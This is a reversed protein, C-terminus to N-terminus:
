FKFLQWVVINAIMLLAAVGSWMYLAKEKRGCELTRTKLVLLVLYVVAVIIYLWTFAIHLGITFKSAFIVMNITMWLINVGQAIGLACIALHAKRLPTTEGRRGRIRLVARRVAGGFLAVICYGLALILLLLVAAYVIGVSTPIRMYDFTMVEVQVGDDATQNIRVAPMPMGLAAVDDTLFLNPQAKSFSMSAAHLSGQIRNEDGGFLPLMQILDYLKAQGNLVTRGSRYLGRLERADPLPEESRALAYKGFVLEPLGYNYVKEQAQNTMVVFGTRSDKDLLLMASFAATNGGHGMVPVGFDAVWLGHSNRPDGNAYLLSPTLLADLTGPKAFLPSMEGEEPLFAQAFRLFDDLTGTAMGAPYLPITFQNATPQLGAYGQTLPRRQRVWPNDDLMPSLATHKMDLPEFIHQHVYSTFPEGSVREVIYGALAVGWNSYAVITGPEFIQNPETSQLTQELSSVTSNPEVFLGIIVDEWGANHHMLNMMTLPTDYCLKTLFGDPLYATIDTNLDLKGQEVLQMVSVWVLLKTASGWEYVTDADAEMGAAIDAYGYVQKLLVDQGRFMAVSVAATTESHADVYADVVSALDADVLGSPLVESALASGVSTTLLAACLLMAFLSKMTRKMLEFDEKM